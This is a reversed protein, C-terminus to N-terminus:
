SGAREGLRPRERPEGPRESATTDYVAGGRRVRTAGGGLDTITLWSLGSGMRASFRKLLAARAVARTPPLVLLLGIVDGVFGPTLMLMGAVLLLFGDALERTPLQNAKLREDIRRLVSRGERKMLWGGVVGMVIVLALTPWGGIVQATQIIVWLEVIPAVVLLLVIWLM